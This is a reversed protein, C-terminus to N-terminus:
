SSFINAKRHFSFLSIRKVKSDIAKFTMSITELDNEGIIKEIKAFNLM